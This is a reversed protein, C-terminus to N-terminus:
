GSPKKIVEFIVVLLFLEFRLLLDLFLLEIESVVFHWILLLVVFKHLRRFKVGSLVVLTVDRRWQWGLNELFSGDLIGHTSYVVFVLLEVQLFWNVGLELSLLSRSSGVTSRCVEVIIEFNILLKSLLLDDILLSAEESIDFRWVSLVWVEVAATTSHSITSVSSWIGLVRWVNPSLLLLSPMQQKDSKM